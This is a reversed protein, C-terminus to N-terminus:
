PRDPRVMEEVISEIKKVTDNTAGNLKQKSLPSQLLAASIADFFGGDNKSLLGDAGKEKAAKRLGFSDHSGTIIIVIAGKSRAKLEALRNLTELTSSDTLTLDLLIADPASADIMSLAEKMTYALRVERPRLVHVILEIFPKDDDIILIDGSM